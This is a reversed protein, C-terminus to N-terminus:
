QFLIKVGFEKAADKAYATIIANKSVLIAKGAMSAKIIDTRSIVKKSSADYKTDSSITAANMVNNMKKEAVRDYLECVNVLEIGYSALLELYETMKQIYVPNSKRAGPHSSFNKIDCGNRAAVIPVGYMLCQSLISTVPTDAIGLAIKATSNLTLTPIIVRDVDRYLPKLTTIQDEYLIEDIGLAKKVEFGDLIAQAGKSFVVKLQWGDSKLRAIERIGEDFGTTSGTFIILATKPLNQLRKIVEDVIANIIQNVDM